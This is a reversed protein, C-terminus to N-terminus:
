TAATWRCCWAPSSGRRRAPWSCCRGPSTRRRAGAAWRRAALIPALTRCRGAAGADAAHRDLGAGGRQRPHRRGCLRHGAVQHAAGGRGQQRQLGAGPRRRLLQLMSATNVICGRRAKLGARAAACVRMTGNLNIDVVQTSPRPSSSPVAASSAPATSWWTWSACHAVWAAVAAGDRVDLAICAIGAMDARAAAAQAEAESAGTAHVEAGDAAFARAIAAGIGSTGGSVLVRRRAEAMDQEQAPRCRAGCRPRAPIPAVAGYGETSLAAAVAAYRRGRAPRRRGAPARRLCRRLHRRCRHCRRQPLPAARHPPAPQADAVLAGAAGLKLAVTRAGLRLCHDAMADPDSLGTLQKLDDLSPLCIDSRGILDSILARARALPWLKLRLNTDFSVAVGAARAIEIAAYATDCASDSIALTIGSLHLVRAAEIRERPLDAPRMRSAASGQRFFSFEHGACRAHRLLDRHLRRTAACARPPGRRRRGVARAAHPRQCRRGARRPLRRARGPAGRCHRLQLHRRRLGAPVAPRRRRRHLQIRGDGRGPGPDAAGAMARGPAKPDICAANDATGRRPPARAASSSQGAADAGRRCRACRREVHFGGAIEEHDGRGAAGALGAQDLRQEFEVRVQRHRHRVGRARRAALLLVAALVPEDVLRCNRAMTSRPSKKSHAAPARCGRRCRARPWRPRPQARPSSTTSSISQCPASCILCSNGCATSIKM